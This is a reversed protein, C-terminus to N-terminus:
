ISNIFKDLFDLNKKSEQLLEIKIESNMVIIKSFEKINATEKFLKGM